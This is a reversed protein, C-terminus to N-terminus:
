AAKQESLDEGPDGAPKPKPTRKATKRAMRRVINIANSAEDGEIIDRKLVGDTLIEQIEKTDIKIGPALKRIDRRIANTITDSLVLAGIIFRNVSQIRGFYKERVSKGLGRRSLLFLKQQDDSQKPTVELFNFSSVLDYNIPREFRIRYLDWVIGNTLVVWQAGHNVAYDVVQRLHAEKLTIGVAKVELLYQVKDDMKIALDCYTGRIAYESTVELYKDFGFVEALMDKTIAVTDAENIDRDRAAQLIRQFKPVTKLYRDIVMKPITVM